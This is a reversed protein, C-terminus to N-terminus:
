AAIQKLQENAYPLWKKNVFDLVEMAPRSDSKGYCQLIQKKDLSYVWSKLSHLQLLQKTSPPCSYKRRPKVSCPHKSSNDITILSSSFIFHGCHLLSNFISHVDVKFTSKCPFLFFSIM